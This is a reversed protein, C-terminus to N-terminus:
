NVKVVDIKEVEPIKADSDSRKEDLDDGKFDEKLCTALESKVLAWNDTQPKDIRARVSGDRGVIFVTSFNWTISHDATCKFLYQYIPSMKDGSVHTLGFIDFRVDKGDLYKRTEKPDRYEQSGFDMSPFALIRLGENYHKSYLENLAKYSSSAKGWKSAVNIIIDVCGKYKRFDVKDGELSTAQFNWFGGVERTSSRFLSGSSMLDKGFNTLSRFM